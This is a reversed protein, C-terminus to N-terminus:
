GHVIGGGALEHRIVKEVAEEKDERQFCAACLKYQFFRGKGKAGGWAEPKDPLFFGIKYPKGGCLLCSDSPLKKLLENTM